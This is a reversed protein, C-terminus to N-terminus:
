VDSPIIYLYRVKINGGQNFVAAGIYQETGSQGTAITTFQSTSTDIVGVDDAKFPPLYIQSQPM